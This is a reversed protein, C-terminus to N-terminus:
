VMQATNSVAPGRTYALRGFCRSAFSRNTRLFMSRLAFEARKLKVMPASGRGSGRQIVGGGGELEGGAAVLILM